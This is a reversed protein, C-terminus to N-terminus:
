EASGVLWAPPAPITRPGELSEDSLEQELMHPVSPSGIGMTPPLTSRPPITSSHYTSRPPASSSHVCPIEVLTDRDDDDDDDDEDQSVVWTEPAPTEAERSTPYPQEPNASTGREESTKLGLPATGSLDLSASALEVISRVTM